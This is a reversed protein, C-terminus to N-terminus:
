YFSQQGFLEGNLFSLDFSANHIIRKAKLLSTLNILLKILPKKTPYFNQQFSHVNFAEVPM